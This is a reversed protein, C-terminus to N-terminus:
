GRPSAEHDGIADVPLGVSNLELFAKARTVYLRWYAWALTLVTAAVVTGLIWLLAREDYRSRKLIWLVSGYRLVDNAERWEDHRVGAFAAVVYASAIWTAILGDWRDWPGGWDRARARNILWALVFGLWCLNKPVEFLPLFFVLAILWFFEIPYRLELGARSLM